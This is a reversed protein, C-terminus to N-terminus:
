PKTVCAQIVDITRATFGAECYALYQEWLRKFRADFKRTGNLSPWSHQFATNWERLTRAYHLGYSNMAEWKLGRTTLLERLGSKTPLMGGPFVYRQIYDGGKRYLPFLAEDITIVQLAARGGPKLLDFLSQAYTDWYKEGVAEFMEISVIHDYQGQADRYDCLEISVQEALGAKVMRARAYAQQSPSITLGTIKVGYARAAYEAFGGWGCGIELVKQGPKLQLQQCLLEYKRQQASQLDESATVDAYVASSYTMSNDLWLSYFDNGLDYHEAINKRSGRKSNPRLSHLLNSLRRLWPRGDLVRDFHTENLLALTFLATLNPSNWDGDLYAECFGLTGGTLLRRVVRERNVQLVAEPGAQPGTFRHPQGTPTIVELTGVQIRSALNLLLALQPHPAHLAHTTTMTEPLATM